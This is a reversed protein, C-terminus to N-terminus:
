TAPASTTKVFGTLISFRLFSNLRMSRSPGYEFGPMATRSYVSLISHTGRLLPWATM